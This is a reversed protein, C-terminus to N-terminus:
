GGTLGRAPDGGQLVELIELVERGAGGTVPLQSQVRQALAPHSWGGPWVMGTGVWVMGTDVWGEGSGLWVMGTGEWGMGTGEWGVWGEGGGQWGM